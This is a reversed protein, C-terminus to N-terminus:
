GGNNTVSWSIGYACLLVACCVSVTVTSGGFTLCSRSSFQTLPLSLPSSGARALYSRSKSLLTSLKSEAPQKSRMDRRKLGGGGGMGGSGRGTVIDGWGGGIWEGGVGEGGGGGGVGGAGGRDCGVRVGLM